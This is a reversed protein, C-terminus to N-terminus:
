DLFTWTDAGDFKRVEFQAIVAPECMRFNVAMHEGGEALSEWHTTCGCKRCSHMALMRDGQVYAITGEDPADITVASIAVHGWLAGLRRCISCNCDVLLEPAQDISFGVAGCHCRGEFKAETM